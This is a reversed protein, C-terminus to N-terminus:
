FFILKTRTQIYCSISIPFRSLYRSGELVNIFLYSIDRTISLTLFLYHYPLSTITTMCTWTLSLGTRGTSTSPRLVLLTIQSLHDLGFTTFFLGFRTIHKCIYPCRMSLSSTDLDLVPLFNAFLVEAFSHM